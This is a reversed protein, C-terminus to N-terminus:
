KNTDSTQGIILKQTPPELPSEQNNIKQVEEMKRIESIMSQIAQVMEDKSTKDAVAVGAMFGIGVLMLGVLRFIKEKSTVNDGQDDLGLKQLGQVKSSAFFGSFM